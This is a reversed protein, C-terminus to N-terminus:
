RIGWLWALIYVGGVFALCVGLAGFFAVAVMQRCSLPRRM